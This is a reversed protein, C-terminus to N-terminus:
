RKHSITNIYIHSYFLKLYTFNNVMEETQIGMDRMKPTDIILEEVQNIIIKPKDIILEEVQDIIMKPKEIVMEEVQHIIKPIM